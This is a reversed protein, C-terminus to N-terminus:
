KKFTDSNSKNWYFDNVTVLNKSYPESNSKTYGVTVKKYNVTVKTEFYTDSNSQTFSVTVKQYAVTVRHLTM